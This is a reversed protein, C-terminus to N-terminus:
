QKLLTFRFSGQTVHGDRALVKYRVTYVNPTLAPLRMVVQNDSSEDIVELPVEHRQIDVLFVQTMIRELTANFRLTVTTPTQRLIAGDAPDSEVLVAHGQAMGPLFATTLILLLGSVFSLPPRRQRSFDKVM